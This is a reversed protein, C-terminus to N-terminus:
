PKKEPFAARIAAITETLAECEACLPLSSLRCGAICGHLKATVVECVAAVRAAEAACIATMVVDVVHDMESPTDFEWNLGHIATFSRRYATMPESM